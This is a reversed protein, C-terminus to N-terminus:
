RRKNDGEIIDCIEKIEPDLKLRFKPYCKACAWVGADGKPSVRHLTCQDRGCSACKIESMKM